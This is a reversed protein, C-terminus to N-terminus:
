KKLVLSKYLNFAPKASEYVTLYSPILPETKLFLNLLFEGISKGRYDPHVCISYLYKKNKKPIIYGIISGIITEKYYCIYTLKPFPAKLFSQLMTRWDSIMYDKDESYCLKHFDILQDLNSIETSINFNTNIHTKHINFNSNCELKQMFDIGDIENLINVSDYCHLLTLYKCKKNKILDSIKILLQEKLNNKWESGLFLKISIKNSLINLCLFGFYSDNEKILFVSENETVFEIVKEKYKSQLQNTFEKLDNSNAVNQILEM